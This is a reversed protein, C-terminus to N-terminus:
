LKWLICCSFALCLPARVKRRSGGKYIHVVSNPPCCPLTWCLTAPQKSDTLPSVRNTKLPVPHTDSRCQFIRQITVRSAHVSGKYLPETGVEEYGKEEGMAVTGCDSEYSNSDVIQESIQSPTLWKVKKTPESSKSKNMALFNQCHVSIKYETQM